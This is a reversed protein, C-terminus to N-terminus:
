VADPELDQSDGDDTEDEATRRFRPILGHENGVVERATSIIEGAWRQGIALRVIEIEDSEAEGITKGSLTNREADTRGLAIGCLVRPVGATQEGRKDLGPPVRGVDLEVELGRPRPWGRLLEVQAAAHREVDSELYREVGSLDFHGRKTEGAVRGDEVSDLDRAHERQDRLPQDLRLVHQEALLQLKRNWGAFVGYREVERDVHAAHRAFLDDDESGM